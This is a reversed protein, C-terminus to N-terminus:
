KLVSLLFKKGQQRTNDAQLPCPNEALFAGGLNGKRLIDIADTSVSSRSMGAGSGAHNARLIPAGRPVLENHQKPLKARRRRRGPGPEVATRVLVEERKGDAFPRSYESQVREPGAREGRRFWGTVAAGRETV